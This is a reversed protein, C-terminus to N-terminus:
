MSEKLLVIGRWGRWMATFGSCVKMLGKKVACLERVWANLVSNMRRIGLLGRLNDKQVARIRSREEYKWLMTESGYMLVPVLLTEHYVRACELQLDRANLQSRIAGAVRRGSVVERSCEAEDTGAEDM